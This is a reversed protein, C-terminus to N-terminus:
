PGCRNAPRPYLDRINAVAPIGEGELFTKLAAARAAKGLGNVAKLKDCYKDGEKKMDGAYGEVGPYNPHNAKEALWEATDTYADCEFRVMDEHAAPPAGGNAQYQVIHLMEHYIVARAANADTVIKSVWICSGSSTWAAFGVDVVDQRIKGYDDLDAIKVSRKLAKLSRTVKKGGLRMTITDPLNACEKRALVVHRPAKAQTAQAVRTPSRTAKNGYGLAKNAPSTVARNGADVVDTGNSMM